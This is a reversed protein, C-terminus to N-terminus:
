IEGFRTAVAAERLIGLWSIWGEENKVVARCWHWVKGLGQWFASWTNLHRPSLHVNKILVMVIDGSIYFSNM